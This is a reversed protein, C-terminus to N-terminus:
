RFGLSLHSPGAGHEETGYRGLAGRGLGAGISRGRTSALAAGTLSGASAPPKVVVLAQLTTVNIMKWAWNGKTIIAHSLVASFLFDWEAYAFHARHGRSLM